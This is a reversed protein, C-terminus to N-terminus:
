GKILSPLELESRDEYTGAALWEILEMQELPSLEELASVLKAELLPELTSFQAATEMKTRTRKSKM